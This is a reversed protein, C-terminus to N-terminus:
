GEKEYKIRPSFVYTKRKKSVLEVLTYFLVAHSQLSELNSYIRKM